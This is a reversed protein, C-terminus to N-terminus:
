LSHPLIILLRKKIVNSIIKRLNSIIKVVIPKTKPSVIKYGGRLIIQCLFMNKNECLISLFWLFKNWASVASPASIGKAISLACCVEAHSYFKQTNQTCGIVKTRAWFIDKQEETLFSQTNRANQTRSLWASHPRVFRADRCFGRYGRRGKIRLMKALSLFAHM